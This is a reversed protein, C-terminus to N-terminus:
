EEFYYLDDLNRPFGEFLIIKDNENINHIFLKFILEKPIM